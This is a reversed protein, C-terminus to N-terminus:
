VDMGASTLEARAAEPSSGVRDARGQATQRVRFALVLLVSGFFAAYVTLLVLVDEPRHAPAYLAYLGALIGFFGAALLLGEGPTEGRMRVAAVMQLVGSAVAWLVVLLVLNGLGGPPYALTTVGFGIGIAGDSALFWRHRQRRAGLAVALAMMGDALAYVSFVVILERLTPEVWVAAVAALLLAVVGRGAIARGSGNFIVM